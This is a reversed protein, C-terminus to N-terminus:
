FDKEREIADVLEMAKAVLDDHTPRHGNPLIDGYSLLRGDYSGYDMYWVGYRQYVKASPRHEYPTDVYFVKDLDDDVVSMIEGIYDFNYAGCGYTKGKYLFYYAQGYDDDYVSIREGRYKVKDVPKSM